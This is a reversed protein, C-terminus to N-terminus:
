RTVAAVLMAAMMKGCTPEVNPAMSMKVCVIRTSHTTASSSCCGKGIWAYHTVKVFAGPRKAEIPERESQHQRQDDCTARHLFKQALRKLHEGTGLNDRVGGAGCGTDPEIQQAANRRQQHQESAEDVM